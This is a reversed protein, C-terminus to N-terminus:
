RINEKLFKLQKGIGLSKMPISYNKISPILFKRYKEGALIIFEDKELNVKIKLQSIVKEAWQKVEENKMSNLTTNYPDIHQELNLLGYKASLIFTKRPNFLAAYKLCLKFMPSCYLDKAKARRALKKSACSILVIKM